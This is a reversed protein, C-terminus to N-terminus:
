LFSPERGRKWKFVLIKTYWKIHDNNIKCQISSLRQNKKYHMEPYIKTLFANNPPIGDTQGEYFKILTNM